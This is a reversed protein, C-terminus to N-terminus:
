SLLILHLYERERWIDDPLCFIFGAGIRRAIQDYAACQQRFYSAKKLAQKLRAESGKEGTFQRDDKKSELLLDEIGYDSLM